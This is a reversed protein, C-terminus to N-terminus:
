SFTTKPKRFAFASSIGESLLSALFRLIDPLFPIKLRDLVDALGAGAVARLTDDRWLRRFLRVQASGTDEEQNGCDFIISYSTPGRPGDATLLDEQIHKVTDPLLIQAEKNRRDLYFVRILSLVTQDWDGKTAWFVHCPLKDTGLQGKV